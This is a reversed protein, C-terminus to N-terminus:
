PVHGFWRLGLLGAAILLVSGLASALATVETREEVWRVQSGLNSYIEELESAGAAYYYDGGTQRAIEQLTTEDLPVPQRQGGVVPTANRDGIGVTQVPVREEAARAAAQSPPVGATSAGDSLLVIRAPAANGQADRPRQALEDLALNLGDGIATGGDARLGDIAQEVEEREPTLPTSLRATNNFSVLGVQVGRPLANVFARAASKAAEMRNPDLDDAAMSGSVDMVLMVATQDRPVAIVATPRALSFLLAALGLGFLLPPIHRRRGPGKPAVEALLALNTFRVAYRRRRRQGLVYLAALVPVLGLSLLLLPWQFTM